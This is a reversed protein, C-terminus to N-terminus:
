VKEQAQLDRWPQASAGAEALRFSIAQGIGLAGGTVVAGKGSLDFLQAISQNSM